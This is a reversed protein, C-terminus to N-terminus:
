VMAKNQFKKNIFRKKKIAEQSKDIYNYQNRFIMKKKLIERM